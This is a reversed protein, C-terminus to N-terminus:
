DATTPAISRLAVPTVDDTDQGDAGWLLQYVGDTSTNRAYFYTQYEGTENVWYLAEGLMTFNTTTVSSNATATFGTQKLASTDTTIYYMENDKNTAKLTNDSM